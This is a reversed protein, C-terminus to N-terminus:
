ANAIKQLIPQLYDYMMKNARDGPHSHDPFMGSSSIQDQLYEIRDLVEQKGQQGLLTIDNVWGVESIWDQRPLKRGLILERVNVTHYPKIYQSFEPEVIYGHGELLIVPPNGYSDLVQKARPYAYKAGLHLAQTPCVTGVNPDEHRFESWDRMMSTHLWIVVDPTKLWSSCHSMASSISQNNSAGNMSLNVIRHGDDALLEAFHNKARWDEMPSVYNPTGWSDGWVWINLKKM